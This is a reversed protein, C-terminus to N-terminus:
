VTVGQCRFAEDLMVRLNGAPYLQRHLQRQGPAFGGGPGCRQVIDRVYAGLRPEEGVEGIARGQMSTDSFFEYVPVRDPEQKQLVSLLRRYDPETGFLSPM